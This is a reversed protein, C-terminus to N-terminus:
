AGRQGFEGSMIAAEIAGVLDTIRFPKHLLQFPNEEAFKMAEPSGSIMVVPLRLQKAHLALQASPEGPMKCDLVIADVARGKGALFDRMASGGDAQTTVFGAAHLMEILAERVGEDNEVVLIHLAM